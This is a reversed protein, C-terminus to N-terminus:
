KVYTGRIKAMTGTGWVKLIADPYGVCTGRRKAITGKEEVRTRKVKAITDKIRMNIVLKGM